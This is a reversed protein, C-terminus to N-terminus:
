ESNPPEVKQRVEDMYLRADLQTKITTFKATLNAQETPPTTQVDRLFAVHLFGQLSPSVPATASAVETTFSRDAPSAGTTVDELGSHAPAPLTSIADTRPTALTFLHNLTNAQKDRETLPSLGFISEITALVSTHDYITSDIIGRPILPSIIVAPVRM